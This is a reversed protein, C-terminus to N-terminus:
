GRTYKRTRVERDLARKKISERKEFKKKGRGLGVQLKVLNRKIYVSIPLLTLGAEQQKGILRRLESRHLLLKRTRYPDYSENNGAPKYPAIYAQKLSAEGKYISVFAGKLQIHGAKISKTEAGTLVIGAEFMEEIAYDFAARKNRAVVSGNSQSRKKRMDKVNVHFVGVSEGYMKDFM